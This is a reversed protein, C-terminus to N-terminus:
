KNMIGPYVFWYKALFHAKGLTVGGHSPLSGPVGLKLDGISVAGGM